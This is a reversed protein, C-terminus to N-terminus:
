RGLRLAAFPAAIAGLLLTLYMGVGWEFRIKMALRGVQLSGPPNLLFLAAVVAPIVALLAAAVRASRLQSVTRRSLITPLLTFWAVAAAWAIGTRQGMQLGTYVARDPTFVHVWPLFFVGLGLLCALVVPGRGHGWHLWPLRPEGDELEEDDTAEAQRPAKDAPLLRVECHPCESRAGEPFIEKCFPCIDHGQVAAAAYM